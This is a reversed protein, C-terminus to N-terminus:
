FECQNFSILVPRWFNKRIGKATRTNSGSNSSDERCQETPQSSTDTSSKTQIFIYLPLQSRGKALQNLGNHWGELDNTTRVAEQQLRQFTREIKEAPLYPLAMLQKILQHTGRDNRYTDQLGLGQVEIFIFALM